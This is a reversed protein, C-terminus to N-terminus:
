GKKCDIGFILFAVSLSPITQINGLLLGIFNSGSIVRFCNKTNFNQWKFWIEFHDWVFKIPALSICVYARKESYVSCKIIVSKNITIVDLDM